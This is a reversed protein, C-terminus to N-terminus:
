PLTVYLADFHDLLAPEDALAARVPELGYSRKALTALARLDRGALIRVEAAVLKRTPSDIRHWFRCAMEVRPVLFRPDFPAVAIARQLAAIFQPQRSDSAELSMALLTWATPHAPSQRIARKAAESSQTLREAGRDATEARSAQRLRVTSLLAALDADEQWALAHQLARAAEDLQLNSLKPDDVQAREAVSRADLLEIAAFLRPVALMVLAVGGLAAILTVLLRAPRVSSSVASRDSATEIDSAPNSSSM